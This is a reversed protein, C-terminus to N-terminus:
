FQEEELAENHVTHLGLKTRLPVWHALMVWTEASQTSRFQMLQEALIEIQVAQWVFKVRLPVFHM